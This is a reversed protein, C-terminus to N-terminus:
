GPAERGHGIVQELDQAVRDIAKDEVICGVLKHEIAELTKESKYDRVENPAVTLRDPCGYASEAPPRAVAFPVPDRNAGLEVLLALPPGEQLAAGEVSRSVTHARRRRGVERM